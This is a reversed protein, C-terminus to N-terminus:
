GEGKPPFPPFPEDLYVINEVAKMIWEEWEKQKEIPKDIPNRIHATMIGVLVFLSQNTGIIKNIDIEKM